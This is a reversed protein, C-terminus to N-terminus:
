VKPHEEDLLLDLALAEAAGAPPYGVWAASFPAEVQKKHAWIETITLPQESRNELLLKVSTARFDAAGRQRLLQYLPMYTREDQPVHSPLVEPSPIALEWAKPVIAEGTVALPSGRKLWRRVAAGAALVIAVALPWVFNEIVRFEKGLHWSTHSHTQTHSTVLSFSM